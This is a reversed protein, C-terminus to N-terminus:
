SRVSNYSLAHKQLNVDLLLNSEPLLILMPPLPMVGFCIRWHSMVANNTNTTSLIRSAIIRGNRPIMMAPITAM